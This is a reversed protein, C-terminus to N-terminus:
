WLNVFVFNRHKTVQVSNNDLVTFHFGCGLTLAISGVFSCMFGTHMVHVDSSDLATILQSVPRMKVGISKTMFM